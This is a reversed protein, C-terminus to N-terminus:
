NKPVLRNQRILHYLGENFLVAQRAAIPWQSAPMKQLESMAFQEYGQSTFVFIKGNESYVFKNNARNKSFVSVGATAYPISTNIIEFVSPMLDEPTAVVNQTNVSSIHQGPSYVMLFSDYPTEEKEWPTASFIARHDPLIFFVTDDFWDQMQASEFFAKLSADSYNLRNCYEEYQNKPNTFPMYDRSLVPGYPSHTSSTYFVAVFPKQIQNLRQFLFQGAEMDFGKNFPPYDAQLPIDEKGYFEKFGLYKTWNAAKESLRNDSQVFVTQWGAQQLLDAWRPFNYKELGTNLYPLGWVYPISFFSATVGLLSRSGAAYFKDYYLANKKLHHFFPTVDEQGDLYKKDWSELLIIVANLKKGNLNGKRQRWLPYSHQLVTENNQVVQGEVFHVAEDELFFLERKEYYRLATVFSFVGNLAIDVKKPHILKQATMMGLSRGHFSLKGKIGFIMGFVLLVIIGERLGCAYKNYVPPVYYKNILQCLKYLLFVFVGMLSFTIYWYTGFGLSLIFPIHGLATITETGLHTFFLSFFVIDGITFFCVVLLVLVILISITKFFARSRVPLFLLIALPLLFHAIVYWDYVFSVRVAQWIDILELSKFYSGSLCFIMVLKSILLFAYLFIVSSAVISCPLFLSSTDLCRTQKKM